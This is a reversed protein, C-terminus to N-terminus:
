LDFAALWFKNSTSDIIEWSSRGRETPLLPRLGQIQGAPSQREFRRGRETFALLAQPLTSSNAAFDARSQSLIRPSLM